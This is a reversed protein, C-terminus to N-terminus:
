AYDGIYSAMFYTKASDGNIDKDSGSIQRVFIEVYDTTNALDIQASIGIAHPDGTPTVLTTEKYSGGNLYICLILGNNAASSVWSVSADIQYTGIVGPTFRDSAYAATLDYRETGFTVKTFVATTVTQAVANKHASVRPAYTGVWQPHTASLKEYTRTGAVSLTNVVVGAESAISNAFGSFHTGSITLREEVNGAGVMCRVGRLNVAANAGRIYGGTMTVNSGEATIANVAAGVSEMYLGTCNVDDMNSIYIQSAGLNGEVDCNILQLGRNAVDNVILMGGGTSDAARGCNEINLGVFKIDNWEGALTANGAKFIGAGNSTLLGCQNILVDYFSIIWNQDTFQIGYKGFQYIEVNDLLTARQNWGYTIGIAAVGANTGILRMDSLGCIVRAGTTGVANIFVGAGRYDLTTTDRGSGIWNVRPLKTLGSNCRYTGQPFYLSAGITNCYTEAAQIAASDDTVGDGVAGFDLVNAPAGDIMSFTAKTLAM